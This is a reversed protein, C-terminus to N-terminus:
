KPLGGEEEDYIEGVLEELIDEVTVIGAIQGDQRYVIAMHARNSSLANLADDIPMELPLSFAKDLMSRAKLVKRGRIKAKLFKRIHLIGEVNGDDDLVPIRSFHGETIVRLIEEDSMSRTVKVTKEWPTLALRVTKVTFELASQVLEAADEDIKDEEDINEIIDFLEEETVTPEEQAGAGALRTVLKSIGSFLVSVPTLIKM